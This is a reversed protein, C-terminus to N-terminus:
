EDWDSPESNRADFQVRKDYEYDPHDATVVHQEFHENMKEKAAALVIEPVHQLDDLLAADITLMDRPGPVSLNSKVQARVVGVQINQQLM